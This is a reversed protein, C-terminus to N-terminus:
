ISYKMMADYARPDLADKWINAVDKIHSEKEKKYASAAEEVSTFIGIHKLCGYKSIRAIYKRSTKNYYVGIPYEGKIAYRDTFIINIEQPVFCCTDESYIKNGKILIDKDLQWGENGFGIQNNCWEKFNSLYRWGEAVTCGKYTSNKDTYKEDYCRRLMSRWLYYEKIYKGGSKIVEDGVVGGFVSPASKDRVNGIRINNLSSVTEYQTNLFKITVRECGEYGTIIFSGYQKSSYIKGLHQEKNIM